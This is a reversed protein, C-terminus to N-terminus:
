KKIIIKKLILELTKKKKQDHQHMDSLSFFTIYMQRMEHSKEWIKKVRIKKYEKVEFNTTIKM